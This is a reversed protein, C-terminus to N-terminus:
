TLPEPSWGTARLGVVTEDVAELLRASHNKLMYGGARAYLIDTTREDDAIVM